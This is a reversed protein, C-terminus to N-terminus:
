RSGAGAARNVCVTLAGDGLTGPFVAVSEFEREVTKWIEPHYARVQIPLTYVLWTRAHSARIADLEAATDVTKWSVPAYYRRYAEAALGVSVVADAENRTREVYDAAGAFDQKPASYVRPLMLTSATIMLCVVVRGMWQTTHAGIPLRLPAMRLLEPAALAGRVVILIAFGACFFFFRPWLNHGLALMTGGALVGPLAMLWAAAPDQRRVAFWGLGVLTMAGAIAVGGVLGLGALNRISERVVWLPDTWESPVSVEHLASRFFEPLALAHLQLTLTASLALAALAAWTSGASRTVLSRESRWALRKVLDMGLVLGHAAAVFVMTSHSWAGLAIVFAYATWRGGGGRERAELWLWSALVAFFLLGMYGRANQSFWVHHYSFSMMACAALSAGAGITRRGLLFLAAISGVGFLVSPMRLAAPSEGFVVISARALLSFLMHQNQSPFIAVIERMPRRVIDVLTFIEDLWLGSNLQWLRLGSAVVLLAALSLWMTASVPPREASHDTRSTQLRRRSALAIGAGLLLVGHGALLVRFLAPGWELRGDAAGFLAREVAASSAAAALGLCAAGALLLCVAGVTTGKM